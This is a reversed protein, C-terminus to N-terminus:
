CYIIFLGFYVCCVLETFIINNFRERCTVIALNICQVRNCVDSYVYYQNRLIEYILSSFIESDKLSHALLSVSFNLCGHVFVDNLLLNLQPINPTKLQKKKNVTRHWVNTYFIWQNWALHSCFDCDREYITLKKVRKMVAIQWMHIASPM